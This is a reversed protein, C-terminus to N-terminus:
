NEQNNSLMQETRHKAVQAKESELYFPFAKIDYYWIHKEQMNCEQWIKSMHLLRTAM